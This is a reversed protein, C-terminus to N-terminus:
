STTTMSNMTMWSKTAPSNTKSRDKTTGSYRARRSKRAASNMTMWSMTTSNTEMWSKTAPSNTRSPDTTTASRRAMRSKRAASNM